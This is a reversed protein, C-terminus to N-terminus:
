AQAYAPWTGMGPVPDPVPEPSDGGYIDALIGPSLQQPTGDFVIRGDHLAIVRRCYQVAVEVQHLSVVITIGDQRNLDALTQMVRRASEPDLSAIPEDALITSAGQVLARAIAARQQQGGSLTSARQLALEGIGVRALARRAREHEVDPFWGPLTRWVPLRSLAGALVNTIVPLRGVLNFQQFIFGIGARARRVDRTVRGARQVCRGSVTIHGDGTRDACALGAILRLLTSKGSGSAGILAVMEGAEVTLTDIDLARRGSRFTKTLAEIHIARRTIRVEAPLHTPADDGTEPGGHTNIEHCAAVCESKNPIWRM